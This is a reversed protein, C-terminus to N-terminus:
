LGGVLVLMVLAVELEENVLSLLQKSINALLFSPTGSPLIQHLCQPQRLSRPFALNGNLAEMETSKVEDNKDHRQFQADAHKKLDILNASPNSTKFKKTETEM